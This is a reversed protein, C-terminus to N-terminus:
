SCGFGWTIRPITVPCRGQDPSSSDVTQLFDVGTEPLADDVQRPALELLDNM